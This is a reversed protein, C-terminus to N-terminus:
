FQYHYKRAIVDFEAIDEFAFDERFATSAEFSATSGVSVDTVNTGQIALVKGTADKFLVQVYILGIDEDSTNTIRGTVKPNGFNDQRLATDSIDYDVIDGRAEELKYNPVLKIGNDLSVDKDIQTAGLSNYFYGKEGPAIVDPCNSIFSDSQLLHGDNDELDFTCDKLYINTGGTNSIEVYGYYNVRGISNTYYNFSTDTIEYAMQKASSSGGSDEVVTSGNDSNEPQATNSDTAATITTSGESKNKDGSLASGFLSLLVVAGLTIFVVKAATHDKKKPPQQQVIVQQVPPPNNTTQWTNGCNSCSGVTVPTGTHPDFQQTFSVTQKGCKPCFTGSNQTNM